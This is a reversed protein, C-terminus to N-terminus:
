CSTWVSYRAMCSKLQYLLINRHLFADGTFLVHEAPRSDRVESSGLKRGTGQFKSGGAGSKLFSLAKKAADKVAKGSEDM